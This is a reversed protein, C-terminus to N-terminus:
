AVELKRAPLPVAEEAKPMKVMRSLRVADIKAPCEHLTGDSEVVAWNPTSNRPKRFDKKGWAVVDGVECEISLEGDEGQQGIWTGWQFSGNPDHTFDVVAIWPRGYRRNNYSSTEKVIKM